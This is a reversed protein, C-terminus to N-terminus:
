RFNSKLYDAALKASSGGRQSVETLLTQAQQADGLRHYVIGLKYKADDAKSNAPDEKLLTSFWVRAPELESQALYVEGLWYQANGRFRGDPYLDLHEKLRVIGGEYDKDVLILKTASKYHALESASNSSRASSASLVNNTAPLAAQTNKSVTNQVASSPANGSLESVRRDLDVYDDLRQQKLQKIQHSQEEVIGRLQLVEQQLVQMQYFLEAINNTASAASSPVQNVSGVPGRQYGDDLAAAPMSQASSNGSSSQAASNRASKSEVPRDVVEVQAQASAVAAVLAATCLSVVVKM